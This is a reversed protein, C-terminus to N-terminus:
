EAKDQSETVTVADGDEINRLANYPGTIIKQDVDLGSVIQMNAQDQIGLKVEQFRAIGNDNLYVGEFLKDKRTNENNESSQTTSTSDEEDPLEDLAVIAQIPVYRVDFVKGTIIDVEATLNPRILDFNEVFQITALFDAIQDSSSLGSIQASAGVTTVIGEFTTDPFADVAIDAKQGISVNQIDTEDVRVEVELVSLDAVTMIIAGPVNPSAIMTREGVEYNLQTVVGDIPSRIETKDYYDRAQRLAIEAKQVAQTTTEVTSKASTYQDKISILQEEANLNKEFLEQAQKYKFDWYELNSEAQRLGAKSTKLDARANDVAFQYSTQRLRVLQDGTMVLDGEKVPLDVIIEYIEAQINVEAKPKVRGTANVKSIIDGTMVKDVTVAMMNEGKPSLVSGIIILLVVVIAIIFFIKKKSRKRPRRGNKIKNKSV